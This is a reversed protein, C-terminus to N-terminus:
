FVVDIRLGLGSGSPAAAPAVTVKLKDPIPKRSPKADWRAVSKGVLYGLTAGGVVDSLRHKKLALRSGAVLSAALYGPVAGKWGYQEAWVTACAFANSAHGSPFALNDSNDPRPRRVAEKLAFTYLFNVVVAQSMDYAAARFRDGNARHGFGLIAGSVGAAVVGTGLFKGINGYTKMPHRAFYDVTDNDLALTSFTTAGGVLLPALSSRAWPEILNHGLNAPFSRITRHDRVVIPEKPGTSAPAPSAAPAPADQPPETAAVVRAAASWACTAVVVLLARRRLRLPSM